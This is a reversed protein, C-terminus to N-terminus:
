DDVKTEKGEIEKGRAEKALDIHVDKLQQEMGRGDNFLAYEIKALKADQASLRTDIKRWIKFGGLVLAILQALALSTDLTINV